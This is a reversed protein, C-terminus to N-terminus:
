QPGGVYHAEVIQGRACVSKYEEWMCFTSAEWGVPAWFTHGMKVDHKPKLVLINDELDSGPTSTYM